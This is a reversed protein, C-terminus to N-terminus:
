SFDPKREIGSITDMLPALKAMIHESEAPTIKTNPRAAENRWGQQHRDYVQSTLFTGEMPPYAAYNFIGTDKAEQPLADYYDALANMEQKLTEGPIFQQDAQMLLPAMQAHLKDTSSFISSFPLYHFYLFDARHKARGDSIVDTAVLFAFFLEVRFLHASYPVFNVIPPRGLRKWRDIVIKFVKPPTNLMHLGLSFTQYRQGRTLIEDVYALVAEPSPTKGFRAKIGRLQQKYLGLDVAKLSDQWQDAMAKELGNFDGEVWRRMAVAEPAEDFFVGASGDAARVYRGGGLYPKRRLELQYGLLEHTFLERYNITPTFAYSPIHSAISAVLEVGSRGGRTKNLNGIVEILLPPAIVVHFHHHLWRAARASLGEIVSKDYILTPGYSIM